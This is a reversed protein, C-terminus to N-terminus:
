VPVGQSKDLWRRITSKSVGYKNATDAIRKNLNLVERVAAAKRPNDLRWQLGKDKIPHDFIKATM